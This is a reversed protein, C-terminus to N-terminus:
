INCDIHPRSPSHCIHYFLYGFVATYKSRLAPVNVDGHLVVFHGTASEIMSDDNATSDSDPADYLMTM